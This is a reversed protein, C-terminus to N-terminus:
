AMISLIRLPFSVLCATCELGLVLMQGRQGQGTNKDGDTTTQIFIAVVPEYPTTSNSLILVHSKTPLLTDSPHAKLNFAMDPSVQLDPHLARLALTM